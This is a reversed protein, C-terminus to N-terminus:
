GKGSIAQLVRRHAEEGPIERSLGADLSEMRRRVVELQEMLLTQPLGSSEILREALEIHAEDSLQLAQSYLEAVTVPM